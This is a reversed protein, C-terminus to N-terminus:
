RKHEPTWSLNHWLRTAKKYPFGYKCYTVDSWPLNCMFPRRKLLGTQPNEICWYKPRLEQILELARMATHDGEELEWSCVDACVTPNAEPDIDLSIVQWGLEAADFDDREMVPNSFVWLLAFFWRWCCACGLNWVLAERWNLDM